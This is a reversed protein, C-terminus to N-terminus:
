YYHFLSRLLLSSVRRRSGIGVEIGHRGRHVVTFAPDLGLIKRGGEYKMLQEM